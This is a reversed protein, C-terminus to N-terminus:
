LNFYESKEATLYEEPTGFPVHFDVPYCAIDLGKSCMVDYVGSVFYEKYRCKELYEPVMEDFLKASRFYYAGCIAQNSVVQKEVTGVVKRNEDFQVYSFQPRDSEFTLLAGDVDEMGKSFAAEFSTSRFMHDCDNFIIPEDDTIHRVGAQCTMVAGPLVEPIVEISAEPFYDLIHSDISYKEVHQKLVVFTVDSVYGSKMISMASWYFFPKGKIEILPKPYEFGKESFRSGAGGMPMILHIRKM